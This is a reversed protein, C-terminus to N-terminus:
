YKRADTCRAGDGFFRQRSSCTTANGAANFICYQSGVCGPSCVAPLALVGTWVDNSYGPQLGGAVVVTGKSGVGVGVFASYTRASWPAAATM